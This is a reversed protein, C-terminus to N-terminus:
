LLNVERHGVMSITHFMSYTSAVVNTFDTQLIMRYFGKPELMSHVTWNFDLYQFLHQFPTPDRVLIRGFSDAARVGPEWAHVDYVEKESAAVSAKYTVMRGVFRQVHLPENFPNRLDAETSEQTVVGLSPDPVVIPSKYKSVWPVNIVDPRKDDSSLSRGAQIVNWVTTAGAFTSSADTDARLKITIQEGPPVYLPRPLRWTFDGTTGDDAWGSVTDYNLRQVFNGLPIFGDTLPLRGLRLDASFAEHAPLGSVNIGSQLKFRIEDILMATRFPNQMRSPDTIEKQQGTTLTVTGTLLIPSKM